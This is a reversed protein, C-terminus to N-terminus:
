PNGLLMTDSRPESNVELNQACMIPATPVVLFRLM